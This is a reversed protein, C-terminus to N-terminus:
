VAVQREQRPLPAGVDSPFLVFDLRFSTHRLYGVPMLEALNKEMVTSYQIANTAWLSLLPIDVGYIWLIRLVQKSKNLLRM